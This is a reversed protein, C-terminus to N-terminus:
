RVRRRNSNKRTSCKKRKVNRLSRTRPKKYSKRREPKVLESDPDTPEIGLPNDLVEIPNFPLDNLDTALLGEEILTQTESLCMFNWVAQSLHDEDKDGRAYKMAHRLGSDLYRSLPIGKRWNNPGYKIAGKEFIKAVAVIARMPLLDMRGKNEQADRVAGTAFETRTGSDKLAFEKPM